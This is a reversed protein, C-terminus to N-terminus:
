GSLISLGLISFQEIFREITRPLILVIERIKLLLELVLVLLEDSILKLVCLVYPEQLLLYLM